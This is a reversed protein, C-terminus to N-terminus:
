IRAPCERRMVAHEFATAPVCSPIMIHVNLPTDMSSRHMFGLGKVGKVNAIEHPDAIVRTTGWPIVLKSFESPTLMSSEIHVHGDIFGPAVYKGNLDIETLGEYMGIGVIRGDEIADAEEFAHTFVNIINAHKLVLRAPEKGRAINSHHEHTM